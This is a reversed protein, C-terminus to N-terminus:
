DVEIRIDLILKGEQTGIGVSKVFKLMRKQEPTPLFYGLDVVVQNGYLKVGESLGNFFSGLSGLLRNNELWARMKPSAYSAFDVAADLRLKVNLAWPLL